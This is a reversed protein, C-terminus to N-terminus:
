DGGKLWKMGLKVSRKVLKEALVNAEKKVQAM